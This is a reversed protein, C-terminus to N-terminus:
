TVEPHRNYFSYSEISYQKKSWFAKQAIFHETNRDPFIASYRWMWFDAKKLVCRAIKYM